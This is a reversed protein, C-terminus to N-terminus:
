WDYLGRPMEPDRYSVVDSERNRRLEDRQTQLLKILESCRVNVSEDAACQYRKWAISAAEAQSRSLAALNWLDASTSNPKRAFVWMNFRANEAVLEGAAEVLEPGAKASGIVELLTTLLGKSQSIGDVV